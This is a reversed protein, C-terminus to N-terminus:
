QVSVKCTITNGQRRCSKIDIGLREHAEKYENLVTDIKTGLAKTANTQNDLETKLDWKGVPAGYQEKFKTDLHIQTDDAHSKTGWYAGLVGAVIAVVSSILGAMQKLTLKVGTNAEISQPALPSGSDMRTRGNGTM